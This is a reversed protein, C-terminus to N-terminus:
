AEKWGTPTEWWQEDTLAPVDGRWLIWQDAFYHTNNVLPGGTYRTKAVDTVVVKTIGRVPKDDAPVFTKTTMEGGVQEQVM